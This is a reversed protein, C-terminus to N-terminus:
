EKILRKLRQWKIIGNKQWQMARERLTVEKREPEVQKEM